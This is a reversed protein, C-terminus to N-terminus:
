HTWNWIAGGVIEWHDRLGIILYIFGKKIGKLASFFTFYLMYVLPQGPVARRADTIIIIFYSQFLPILFM